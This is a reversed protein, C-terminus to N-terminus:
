SQQQNAPPGQKLQKITGAKSEGDVILIIHDISSKDSSMYQSSWVHEYM